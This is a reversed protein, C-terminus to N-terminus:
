ELTRQLLFINGYTSLAGTVHVFERRSVAKVVVLPCPLLQPPYFGCPFNWWHKTQDVSLDTLKSRRGETQFGRNNQIIILNNSTLLKVRATHRPDASHISIIDWSLIELNKMIKTLVKMHKM